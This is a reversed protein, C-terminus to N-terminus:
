MSEVARNLYSQVGQSGIKESSKSGKSFLKGLGHLAIWYAPIRLIPFWWRVWADYELSPLTSAHGMNVFIKM